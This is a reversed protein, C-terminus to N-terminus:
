ELLGCGVGESCVSRYSRIRGSGHIINERVSRIAVRGLEGGQSM